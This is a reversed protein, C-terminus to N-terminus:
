FCITSINKTILKLFEKQAKKIENNTFSIEKGYSEFDCVLIEDYGENVEIYAITRRDDNLYFRLQLRGVWSLDEKGYSCNYPIELRKGEKNFHTVLENLDNIFEDDDVIKNFLIKNKEKRLNKEKQETNKIDNQRKINESFEKKLKDILSM